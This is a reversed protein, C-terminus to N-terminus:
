WKRVKQTTTRQFYLLLLQIFDTRLTSRNLREHRASPGLEWVM